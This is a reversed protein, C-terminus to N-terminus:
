IFFNKIKISEERTSFNSKSIYIKKYQLKGLDLLSSVIKLFNIYKICNHKKTLVGFNSWVNKKGLRIGISNTLRGM